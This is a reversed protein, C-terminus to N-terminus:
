IVGQQLYLDAFFTISIADKTHVPTGSIKSSVHSIVLPDHFHQLTDLDCVVDESLLVRRVGTNHPGDVHFIGFYLALGKPRSTKYFCETLHM